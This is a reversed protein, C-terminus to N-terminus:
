MGTGIKRGVSTVASKMGIIGSISPVTLSVVGGCVVCPTPHKTPISSPAILGSIICNGTTTSPHIIRVVTRACNAASNVEVKRRHLLGVASLINPVPSAFGHLSSFLRGRFDQCVRGM